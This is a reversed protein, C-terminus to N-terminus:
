LSCSNQMRKPSLWRHAKRKAITNPLRQYPELDGADVVEKLLRTYEARDAATTDNGKEDTHRKNCYYRVALQVKSMLTKGEALQIAKDLLAKAEDLEASASRAHYAGLATMASGFMYTEDLKMSQELLGVAVHLEAVVEPREKAANVKGLWAYGVWFLPEADAPDTFQEAYAKITAANTTAEKFGPYRKELLQTGYWVSRDYAAEARRKHYDWDESMTGHADEAREMADEIFGFGVSAWSRTLMFLADDNQPALFRFGELQALGAMAAKEAVEYDGITNIAVSARRTSAIQGNLLVKSVCGTSGLSAAALLLVGTFKSLNLM